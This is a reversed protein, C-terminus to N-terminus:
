FVECIVEGGLKQERAQKNTMLGKSTSIIAIGMGDFVYPLRKAGVYVRRGPKSIRRIEHIAPEKASYKLAVKLEKKGDTEATSVSTVYGEKALIEALRHKLTSYPLVIDTIRVMQANRLRTLMDAIPDTMM